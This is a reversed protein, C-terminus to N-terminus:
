IRIIPIGKWLFHERKLRIDVEPVSGIQYSKYKRELYRLYDDYLQDYHKSLIEIPRSFKKGKLKLTIFKLDFKTMAQRDGM